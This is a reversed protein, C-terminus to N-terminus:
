KANNLSKKYLNQSFYLNFIYVGIPRTLMNVHVYQEKTTLRHFFGLSTGRTADWYNKILIQYKILICSKFIQNIHIETNLHRDSYLM